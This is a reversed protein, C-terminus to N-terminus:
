VVDRNSATTPRVYDMDDLAKCATRRQHHM